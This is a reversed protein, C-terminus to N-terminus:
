RSSDSGLGFHDRLYQERSTLQCTRVHSALRTQCVAITFSPRNVPRLGLNRKLDYSMLWKGLFLARVSTGSSHQSFPPRPANSSSRLSVNIVRTGLAQETRGNWRQFQCSFLVWSVFRFGNDILAIAILILCTSKQGERAELSPARMSQRESVLGRSRISLALAGLAQRGM